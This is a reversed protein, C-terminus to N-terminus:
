YPCAVAVYMLHEEQEITGYARRSITVFLTVFHWVESVKLPSNSWLHFGFRQIPIVRKGSRRVFQEEKGAGEM